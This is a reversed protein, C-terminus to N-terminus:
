QRQGATAAPPELVITGVDCKDGTEIVEVPKRASAVPKGYGYNPGHNVEYVEIVLTYTGPLVDKVTFKGDDGVRVAYSRHQAEEAAAFKKGAPTQRFKELWADFQEKTKITEDRKPLLALPLAAGRLQAFVYRSALDGSVGAPLAVEGTVGEGAGGIKSQMQQGPSANLRVLHDILFTLSREREFKEEIGVAVEGPPINAFRFAGDAGIKAAAEYRVRGPGVNQDLVAKV